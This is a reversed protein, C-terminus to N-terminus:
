GRNAFYIKLIEESALLIGKEINRMSEVPSNFFASIEIFHLNKKKLESPVDKIKGACIFQPVDTDMFEKLILSVGKQMMSQSDFAGEGTVILDPKMKTRDLGLDEKLFERAFKYEANLFFNLGGALGGGAGLLNETSKKKALIGVINRIGDELIEVEEPSAGKQPAFIRAAGNEGLLPTNVDLIAEVEFGLHPDEWIVSEANLFNEPIPKLENKNKDLLKLGLISCMGIGFDSTGTGGIGIVARKVDLRGALKEEKLHFLIEGLGKSSLRLPHRKGKPILKMGLVEASEIYVTGNELSYGYSTKVKEGEFPASVTIEKEKLHFNETCVKLFGDGGDSVPKDIFHWDKISYKSGLESKLAEHFLHTLRVSDACEKFSNPAILVEPM